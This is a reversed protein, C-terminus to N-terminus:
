GTRRPPEPRFVWEDGEISVLVGALNANEGRELRELLRAEDGGEPWGGFHRMAFGIIRLRVAKPGFVAFRLAIGDRRVHQDWVMESAWWLADDADRLHEASRRVMQADLWGDAKLAKRVRVREFDSNENSPDTCVAVRMAAVLESLEARTFSLLPRVITAGVPEIMDIWPAIGGLGTVGVGRNLRMIVTEAQDDAHHATAVTALGRRKSWNGLAEYRAERAKAQVNGAGVEVSLVACPVGRAECAAAVLACEDKAEPRLGHNVTAVEFGGPIAAQALLLMAMSDPGGSVALGIRGGGPNLRDLAAEFRAVLALDVVSDIATLGAM